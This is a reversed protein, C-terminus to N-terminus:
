WDSIVELVGWRERAIGVYEGLAEPNAFAGVNKVREGHIVKTVALEIKKGSRTYPIDKVCIIEKPVHRPTLNAKIMNKIKLILDDSWPATPNMKVFLIVETDGDVQRGVAISDAIEPLNEVQRYIEATGIRVGGPNLTADSRGYVVIGGSATWEIYDGHRWVERSHEQFYDFYAEHYKKDEPDNLFGVPM